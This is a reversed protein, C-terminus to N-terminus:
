SLVDRGDAEIILHLHNTQLSFEVVRFDNRRAHLRKFVANMERLADKTRMGRRRGRLTVHVPHRLHHSPRTVHAVTSRKSRRRRGAGARKGGWTPMELELQKMRRKRAM